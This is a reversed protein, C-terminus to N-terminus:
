RKVTKIGLELMEIGINYYEGMLDYVLDESLVGRPIDELKGEQDLKLDEMYEKSYYYKELKEFDSFNEKYEELMKNMKKAFEEQRVLRQEMDNIREINKDM